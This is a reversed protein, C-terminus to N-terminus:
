KGSKKLFLFVEPIRELFVQVRARPFAKEIYQCWSLCAGVCDGDPRLHGAIGISKANELKELLEKSLKEM